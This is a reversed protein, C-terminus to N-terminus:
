KAQCVLMIRNVIKCKLIKAKMCKLYLLCLPQTLLNKKSLIVKSAQRHIQLEQQIRSNMLM